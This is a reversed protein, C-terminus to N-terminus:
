RSQCPDPRPDPCSVGPGKVPCTGVPSNTEAGNEASKTFFTTTVHSAHALQRITRAHTRAHRGRVKLPVSLPGPTPGPM